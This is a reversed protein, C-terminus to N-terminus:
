LTLIFWYAAYGNYSSLKVVQNTQLDIYQDAGNMHLITKIRGQRDYFLLHYNTLDSNTPYVGYTIKNDAGLKSFLVKIESMTEANVIDKLTIVPALAVNEIPVEVVKEDHTTPVEPTPTSTPVEPSLSSLSEQAPTSPEEFETSPTKSPEVVPDTVVKVEEQKPNLTSIESLAKLDIGVKETDTLIIQGKGRILLIDSKKVYIFVRSHAGRKMNMAESLSSVDQLVIHKVTGDKDKSKVWENIEAVLLENAYKQAEDGDALTAEASLYAYSKKIKNIKSKIDSSNIQGFAYGGIMLGIIILLIKRM